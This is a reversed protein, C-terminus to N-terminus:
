SQSRGSLTGLSVGLLVSSPCLIPFPSLVVSWSITDLPFLTPNNLGLSLRLLSYHYGEFELPGTVHWLFFLAIQSGSLSPSPQKQLYTPSRGELSPRTVTLVKLLLVLIKYLLSNRTM